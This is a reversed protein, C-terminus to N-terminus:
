LNQDSFQKEKRETFILSVFAATWGGANLPCLIEWAKSAPFGVCLHLRKGKCDSEVGIVDKLNM